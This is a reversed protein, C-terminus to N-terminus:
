RSSGLFQNEVTLYQAQWALEKQMTGILFLPQGRYINRLAL